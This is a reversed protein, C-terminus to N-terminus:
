AGGGVGQPASVARLGREGFYRALTEPRGAPDALAVYSDPRLLYAADQDLGAHAHAPTWAFVHVAVGHTECWERLGDRPEGYVHVQWGIEGLPGFNDAEPVWPLRDGSHVAGAQGVSLPGGRYSLALQGVTRFLFERAADVKFVQPILIPALRTRILDAVRGEATVVTFARDTTAVLRRAFAIRETEYSDLLADPARGQLVAALKWALNIADGLGTNM